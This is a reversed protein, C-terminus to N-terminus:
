RYRTVPRLFGLVMNCSNRTEAFSTKSNDFRLSKLLEKKACDICLLEIIIEPPPFAFLEVVLTVWYM